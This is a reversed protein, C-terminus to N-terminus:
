KPRIQQATLQLLTGMRNQYAIDKTMKDYMKHYSALSLQHQQCLRELLKDKEKQFQRQVQNFKAAEQTTFAEKQYNSKIDEKQNQFIRETIQDASPREDTFSLYVVAFKEEEESYTQGCLLVPFWVFLYIISRM